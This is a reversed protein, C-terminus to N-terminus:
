RPDDMQPSVFESLSPMSQVSHWHWTHNIKNSMPRRRNAREGMSPRTGWPAFGKRGPAIYLGPSWTSVMLGIWPVKALVTRESLACPAVTQGCSSIERSYKDNRSCKSKISKGDRGVDTLICPFYSFIYLISFKIKAKGRYYKNKTVNYDNNQM